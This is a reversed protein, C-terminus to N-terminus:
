SDNREADNENGNDEAEEPYDYDSWDELEEITVVDDSTWVIRLGTVRELHDLQDKIDVKSLSQRSYKLINDLVRKIRKRGYGEERLALAAWVCVCRAANAHAQKLVSSVANAFGKAM